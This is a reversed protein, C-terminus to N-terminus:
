ERLQVMRNRTGSATAASVAAATSWWFGDGASRAERRDPVQVILWLKLGDSAGRPRDPPALKAMRGAM